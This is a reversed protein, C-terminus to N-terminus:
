LESCNPIIPLAVYSAYNTNRYISITPSPFFELTLANDKDVCTITVRLRHGANFINSTPHLDFILEVPENPLEVIDEAFSRHYPLGIYDYPTTSISRHAARLTGETIYRSVGKQDVEELYAFFDGDKITSTVWLHIIPHGTVQIDEMLPTTTYTLGKEDNSTMDAYNFEGGYGNVWRTAKGSTTTYNVTYNDHGNINQPPQAILLGDNVSNVSGSTGDHFYYKILEQNPLPWQWASSWEKGKPAKMTYYHIPASEMIGNDIDKLWYDYWRLHETALDFDLRQGHSWPGIVIKQPNDLNKFWLLADRPWMDYWGALHYIAVGSKKVQKLYSSPSRAIHPMSKTEKDRSNRYPLSKFMEFVDRNAQHQQIAAVLMTANQDQEVPAASIGSDLEKVKCSWQAVFDHRFVGGPYTFEYFDFMAMEPFIAKLHPPATSAAMYQTIGMYSDGFMGVNQNCWSQAAFWETIDYADNAEEQSFPGTRTGYSAGGGRVDVVAIVYGHKILTKLWPTNDLQTRNTNNKILLKASAILLKFINTHKPLRYISARHYRHHNWIVPLPDIVPKGDKVPRFIDVALKTGDRVTLYQSTRIWKKYVPQLYEGYRSGSESLVEQKRLFRIKM